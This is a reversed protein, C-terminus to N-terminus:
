ALELLSQKTTQVICVNNTEAKQKQAKECPVIL